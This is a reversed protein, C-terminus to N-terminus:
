RVPILGINTQDISNRADDVARVRLSVSAGATLEPAPVVAVGADQATRRVSVEHWSTGDDTSWWLQVRTIRCPPEDTAPDHFSLHLRLPRRADATSGPDVDPGYNVDLLVPSPGAPSGFGWVTHARRAARLTGPRLSWDQRLQFRDSGAPVDFVGAVGDATGLSKGAPTTLELHASELLTDNV